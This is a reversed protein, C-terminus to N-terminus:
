GGRREQRQGELRETIRLGLIEDIRVGLLRVQGDFAIEAVAECQANTVVEVAPTVEVTGDVCVRNAAIQHHSVQLGCNEASGSLWCITRESNGSTANTGSARVNRGGKGVEEAWRRHVRRDRDSQERTGCSGSTDSGNQRQYQLFVPELTSAIESREGAADGEAVHIGVVGVATGDIVSQSSIKALTEVAMVLEQGRVGPGM